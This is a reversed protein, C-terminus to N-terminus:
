DHKIENYHMSTTMVAFLMGFLGVFLRTGQNWHSINFDAEVFCGALYAATFVGLGLLVAKLEKNM